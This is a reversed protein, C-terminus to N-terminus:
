VYCCRSLLIPPPGKHNVRSVRFFIMNRPKNGTHLLMEGHTTLFHSLVVDGARLLQQTGHPWWRSTPPGGEPGHWEMAGPGFSRTPPPVMRARLHPPSGRSANTGAERLWPEVPWGPGGPGLPGGAELQQAFFKANQRHSGIQVAFNGCDCELQDSLAVGAICSWSHIPAWLDPAEAHEGPHIAIGDVHGNWTALPPCESVDIGMYRGLQNPPNPQRIAIQSNTVAQTEGGLLGEFLTPLPSDHYLALIAPHDGTVKAPGNTVAALAADILEVAVVQPLVVVGQEVFAQQEADTLRM